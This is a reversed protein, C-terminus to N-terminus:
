GANKFAAVIRAPDVTESGLKAIAYREGDVEVISAPAYVTVPGIMVKPEEVPAEVEAVQPEPELAPEQVVAIPAAPAASVPPAPAAFSVPPAEYSPPPTAAPPGAVARAMITPSVHGQEVLIQSVPLNTRQQEARAGDLVAQTILGAAVLIEGPDPKGLDHHPEEM